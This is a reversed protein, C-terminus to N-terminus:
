LRQARLRACSQVDLVILRDRPAGESFPTGQGHVRAAVSRFGRFAAAHQPSRSAQSLRMRVSRADHLWAVAIATCGKGLISAGVAGERARVGERRSLYLDSSLSAHLAAISASRHAKISIALVISQVAFLAVSVGHALPRLDAPPLSFSTNFRLAAGRARL